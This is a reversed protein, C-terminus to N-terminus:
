TEMGAASASRCIMSGSIEQCTRFRTKESSRDKLRRQVSYRTISSKQMCGAHRLHVLKKSLKAPSRAEETLMDAYLDKGHFTFKLKKM